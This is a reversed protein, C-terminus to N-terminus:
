DGGGGGGDARGIADFLNKVGSEGGLSELKELAKLRDFFKIEISGDKPKKIESIMFLDMSKLEAASLEGNYLLSAADSTDGFALRWYGSTALSRALKERTKCLRLIENQTDDRSLLRAGRLRSNIKYGALRASLDADGTEAFCICFDRERNKLKNGIFIVEPKSPVPSDPRVTM